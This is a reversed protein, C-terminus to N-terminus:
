VNEVFEIENRLACFVSGNMNENYAEYVKFTFSEPGLIEKVTGLYWFDPKSGSVVVFSGVEIEPNLLSVL